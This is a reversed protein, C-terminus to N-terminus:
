ITLKTSTTLLKKELGLRRASRALRRDATVIIANSAAAVALHLADLTRLPTSFRALWTKAMQYHKVELPIRHFLGQDVHSQFENIIQLAGRQALYKERVKKAVASVLEVETLQSIAPQKSATIFREVAESLPEPCYYAALISTDIYLM